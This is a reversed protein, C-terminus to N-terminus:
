KERIRRATYSVTGMLLVLLPEVVLPLWFCMKTQSPTLFVFSGGQVDKPRISVLDEEGALWAVTNLFLDKNGGLAVHYNDIFDSDGYVVFSSKISEGKDNLVFDVDAVAAISIPGKEDIGENFRIQGREVGRRDREAWSESGTRVLSRSIIGERSLTETRVSRVLPFVSPIAFERTIPHSMYELVFPMFPDGGYVQSSKDVVIDDSIIINRKALFGDLGSVAYPDIMFIAKGDSHLYTSIKELESELIEKVPGAVVLLSCDTPVEKEKTLFLGKVSYGQKEMEERIAEYGDNAESTTDKEGHGRLFYVTKKELRTLRYIANTLEKEDPRDIVTSKGGSEVAISGYGRINYGKSKAPHHDPDLVAYRVRESANAYQYLLDTIEARGPQNKKLFAIIEIDSELNELVKKSQQSLSFIKNASLDFRRNCRISIFEILMIIGLIALATALSNLGYRTSRGFLAGSLM